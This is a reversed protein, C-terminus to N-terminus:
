EQKNISEVEDKLKQVDKILAPADSYRSQSLTPSNSLRQKQKQNKKNQERKPSKSYQMTDELKEKNKRNGMRRSQPSYDEKRSNKRETVRHNPSSNGISGDDTKISFEPSLEREHKKISKKSNPKEFLGEKKPSKSAMKDRKFKQKRRQLDDDSGKEQGRCLGREFQPSRSKRESGISRKKNIMKESPNRSDPHREERENRRLISNPNRERKISKQSSKRSKTEIFNNLRGKLMKLKRELSENERKM